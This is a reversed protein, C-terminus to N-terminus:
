PRAQPEGGHGMDQEACQAADAEGVGLGGLGRAARQAKREELDAGQDPDADAAKLSAMAEAWGCWALNVRAWARNVAAAAVQRVLYGPNRVV